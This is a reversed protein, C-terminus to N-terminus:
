TQNTENPKEVFLTAPTASPDYQRAIRREIPDLPEIPAPTQPAPAKPRPEWLTGQDEKIYQGFLNPM